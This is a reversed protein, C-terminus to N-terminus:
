EVEEYFVRIMLDKLAEKDAYFEEHKEGMKTEGELSYINETAFDYGSATNALYALEDAEVDTVMYKNLEQFLKIPLTIDRKTQNLGKSVFASLYQKQRELRGRNSEFVTIDRYKVYWYADMGMLTLEEGESWDLQDKKSKIDELATVTVGGVADNLQPVAGMNISAYGHIPLDYFLKSVADCTLECSLEKGDGFGHQTAIQATITQANTEDSGEYGYMVVDTMTDRNVTVISIAETDPNLVVLFLADSQGGSVEDPNERVENMQDIGMILFTLIDENYCYIKDNHRVWGEEWVVEQQESTIPEEPTVAQMNPQTAVIGEQLRKKGGAMFIAVAGIVVVFCLIVIFAATALKKLIRKQKRRRRERLIPEDVVTDEDFERIDRTVSDETDM